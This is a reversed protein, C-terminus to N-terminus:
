GSVAACDPGGVDQFPDCAFHQGPAYAKIQAEGGPAGAVGQALAAALLGLVKSSALLMAALVRCIISKRRGLPGSM